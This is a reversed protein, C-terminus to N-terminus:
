RMSGKSIMAPAAKLSLLSGVTVGHFPKVQRQNSASKASSRIHFAKAFEMTTAKATTANDTGIPVAAAM